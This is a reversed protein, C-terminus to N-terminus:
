CGLQLGCCVLEHLLPLQCELADALCVSASSGGTGLQVLPPVRRGRLAGRSSTLKATQQTLRACPRSYPRNSTDELTHQPASGRQLGGQKAHRVAAPISLSCLPWCSSSTSAAYINNTTARWLEGWTPAFTLSQQWTRKEHNNPAPHM